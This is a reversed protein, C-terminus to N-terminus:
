RAAGSASRAHTAAAAPARCDATTGSLGGLITNLHSPALRPSRRAASEAPKSVSLIYAVLQEVQEPTFVDKFSQMGADPVGENIVRRVHEATLGSYDEMNRASGGHCHDNQCTETFLRKGAAIRAREDSSAPPPTQASIAAFGCFTGILVGAGIAARTKM